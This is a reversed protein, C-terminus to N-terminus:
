KTRRAEGRQEGLVRPLRGELLMLDALVLAAVSELVVPVRLAICPDHRGEMQLRAPKGTELDVTKLEGFSVAPKVAVRFVLPNGSTIGGDVGGSYNCRLRGDASTIEDRVDQGRARGFGFGEGLEVGKVGPIAFAAHALLGEVSDFFPEGLGAPLGEAVCEVIGGVSDGDRAAERVAADVDPKGGAEIVRAAIRVEPLLKRAIAGAAVLGVTLRGSSHGGGRPDNFGGFKQRAVLDAHGPRPKRAIERYASPDADRNEFEILIPAGTTRGEFVGSGITPADAERRRTTGARGPRRRELAPILSEPGLELGAPCGDVLVGLREGHSEGFLQVRLIRGFSNM